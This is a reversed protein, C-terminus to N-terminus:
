RSGAVSGIRPDPLRVTARGGALTHQVLRPLVTAALVTLMFASPAFFRAGQYFYPLFFALQSALVLLVFRGVVTDWNLIAVALGLLTIFPPAFVWFFGAILMTYFLWSPLSHMPGGLGCPHCAWRALTGQLFDPFIWPGEGTLGAATVSAFSFPHFGQPLWYDYGTRWPAGFTAWQYTALVLMFPTAALAVRLRDRERVVIVLVVLVPLFSLRVLLGYGAIAGVLYMSWRSRRLLLPLLAVALAAALADSMVLQASVQVFPSLGILLVAVSAAWLGALELAAWAVAIVLLCAIVKAGLQVNSPYQGLLAFPALLLPYGMPYRPPNAGAPHTPLEKVTTTYGLGHVLRNASDAYESTDPQAQQPLPIPHSLLMSAVVLISIAALVVLSLRTKM